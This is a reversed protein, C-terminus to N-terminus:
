LQDQAQTGHTIKKLGVTVNMVRAIFDIMADELEALKTSDDVLRDYEDREITVYGARDDVDSLSGIDLWTGVNYPFREPSM